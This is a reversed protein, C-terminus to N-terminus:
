KLLCYINVIRRPFLCLLVGMLVYRMTQSNFFLRILKRREFFAKNFLKKEKDEQQIIVHLANTISAAGHYCLSHGVKSNWLREKEVLEFNGTAVSLLDYARKPNPVNTISGPTRIVTYLVQPIVHVSSAKYLMRPTFEADEHFIGPVFKLGNDKIFSHKLIYFVGCDEWKREILIDQGTINLPSITNRVRNIGETSAYIPIVDPKSEIAKCITSVADDSIIDDADVFWVYDGKAADAGNNRAISLGQNAQTIVRLNDNENKYEDLIRPSGDTSGDDVAVIEYDDTCIGKQFILTEIARRLYPEKNFITLIISLKM